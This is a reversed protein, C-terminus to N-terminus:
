KEHKEGFVLEYYRNLESYAYQDALESLGEIINKYYWKHLNKDNENFRNWVEEGCKREDFYIDRLNALKDALMIIKAEIPSFSLANITEKKRVMWTESPDTGVRKDETEHEILELVRRGFQEEVMEPTVEQCDELTDHLLAAIIIDEDDTMTTTIKAVEFPHFIYPLGTGKRYIGRHANVAFDIASNIRNDTM